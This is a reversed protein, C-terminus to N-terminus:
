ASVLVKETRVVKFSGTAENLVRAAVRNYGIVHAPPRPDDADHRPRYVPPAPSVPVDVVDVGARMRTEFWAASGTYSTVEAMPKSEGLWYRPPLPAPAPASVAWDTLRPSLPQGWGRAAVNSDASASERDHTPLATPQSPSTLPAPAPSYPRAADMEARTIRRVEADAMEAELRLQRRWDAMSLDDELLQAEWEDLEALERAERKARDRHEARLALSALVAVLVAFMVWTITAKGAPTAAWTFWDLYLSVLTLAALWCVIAAALLVHRFRTM